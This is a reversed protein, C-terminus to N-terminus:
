ATVLAPRTADRLLAVSGCSARPGPWWGAWTLAEPVAARLAAAGLGPVYLALAARPLVGARWSAIGFLVVGALFTLAVVLFYPRGPGTLM